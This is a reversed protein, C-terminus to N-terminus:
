AHEIRRFGRGIFRLSVHAIREDEDPVPARSFEGIRVKGQRESVVSWGILGSEITDAIEDARGLSPGATWIDIDIVAEILRRNPAGSPRYEVQVTIDGIKPGGQKYILPAEGVRTEAPLIQRLRDILHTIFESL